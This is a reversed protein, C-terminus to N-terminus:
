IRRLYTGSMRDHWCLNQKDFLAWVAGLGVPLMAVALAGLRRCRQERTPRRGDFTRLTLLAYRMGPTARALTYSIVLYVLAIAAFVVGGGIEAERITPLVSAKMAVMAAVGLSALSVLGLDVVAALVRRNIPAAQLEVARAPKEVFVPEALPEQQQMAELKLDAREPRAWEPAEVSQQVTDPQTSISAPDVEFISLQPEVDANAGYIGEARRPRVKRAAVLEYPFEILNGHIAQPEVMSVALEEEEIKSAPENWIKQGQEGIWSDKLPQLQAGATEVVPGAASWSERHSERKLAESLPHQTSVVFSNGFDWESDWDAKAVPGEDPISVRAQEVPKSSEAGVVSPAVVSPAAMDLLMIQEAVPEPASPATITEGAFLDSYKPATAYRAAVRAAASSARGSGAFNGHSQVGSDTATSGKRKRHAAVRQSVEHKWL